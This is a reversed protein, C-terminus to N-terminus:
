RIELQYKNSDPVDNHPYSGFRVVTGDLFVVHVPRKGNVTDLYYGWVEQELGEKTIWHDGLIAPTGLLHQVEKKSMGLNMKMLNHQTVAGACGALVAALLVFVITRTM